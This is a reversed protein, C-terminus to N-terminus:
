AHEKEKDLNEWANLVEILAEPKHKKLLAWLYKGVEQQGLTYNTEAGNPSFAPAMPDTYELLHAFFRQFGPQKLLLMLDMALVRDHEARKKDLAAQAKPDVTQRGAM